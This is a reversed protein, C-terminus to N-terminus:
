YDVSIVVIGARKALARAPGDHTEISGTVWGGGHFYVLAMSPEDTETPRYIRIPVGDADVDEVSHVEDLEGWQEACLKVYQARLEDVSLAGPPQVGAAAQEELVAQIQPDLVPPSM